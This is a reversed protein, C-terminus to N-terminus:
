EDRIGKKFVEDVDAQTLNGCEKLVADVYGGEQGPLPLLALLKTGQEIQILM